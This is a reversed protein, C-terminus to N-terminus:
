PEAVHPAPGTRSLPDTPEHPRNQTNGKDTDNNNNNGKNATRNFQGEGSGGTKQRNEKWEGGCGPPPLPPWTASKNGAAALVLVFVM